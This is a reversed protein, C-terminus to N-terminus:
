YDGRSNKRWVRKSNTYILALASNKSFSYDEVRIPTDLGDPILESASVLVSREGTAADYAVIEQGKEVKSDELATYESGTHWRFSKTSTKFEDGGYIRCLTLQSKDAMGTQELRPRSGRNGMLSLDKIADAM